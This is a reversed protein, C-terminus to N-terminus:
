SSRRESRNIEQGFSFLGIGDARDVCDIAIRRVARVRSHNQSPEYRGGAEGKGNWCSKRLGLKMDEIQNRAKMRRM